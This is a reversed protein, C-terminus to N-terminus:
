EPSSCSENKTNEYNLNLESQFKVAVRTNHVLGMGREEREVAREHSLKLVNGIRTTIRIIQILEHGVWRLTLQNREMM